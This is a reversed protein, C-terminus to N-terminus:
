NSLRSRNSTTHNTRNIEINVYSNDQIHSQLKVKSQQPTSNIAEVNERISLTSEFVYNKSINKTINELKSPTKNYQLLDVGSQAPKGKKDESLVSISTPIVSVNFDGFVGMNLRAQPPSLETEKSKDDSLTFIDNKDL